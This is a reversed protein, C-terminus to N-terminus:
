SHTARASIVEHVYFDGRHTIRAPARAVVQVRLGRDDALRAQAFETAARM